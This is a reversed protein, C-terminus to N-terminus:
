RSAQLLAKIRPDRVLSQLREAEARAVRRGLASTKLYRRRPDVDEGRPAAIEEVLEKALLDRIRRYLNAPHVVVGYDEDEIARV